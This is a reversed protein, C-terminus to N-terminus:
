VGCVSQATLSNWGRCQNCGAISLRIAKWAPVRDVDVGRAGCQDCVGDCLFVDSDSWHHAPHPSSSDKRAIARATQGDVRCAFRFDCVLAFNWTGRRYRCVDRGTALPRGGGVRALVSANTSRIHEFVDFLCRATSVALANTGRGGVRSRDM